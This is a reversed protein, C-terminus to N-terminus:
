KYYLCFRNTLFKETGDFNSLTVDSLWNLSTSVLSHLIM